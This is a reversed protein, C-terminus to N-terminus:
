FMLYQEPINRYSRQSIEKEQKEEKNDNKLEWLNFPTRNFLYPVLEFFVGKRLFKIMNKICQCHGTKITKSNYEIELRQYLVLQWLKTPSGRWERWVDYRSGNKFFSGDGRSFFLTDFMQSIISTYNDDIIFSCYLLCMILVFLM